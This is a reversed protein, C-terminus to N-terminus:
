VRRHDRRVPRAARRGGPALGLLRPEFVAAWGALGYIPERAVCLNRVLVGVATAAPLTTRGDGAPMHRELVGALDVRALFQDILPLAGLQSSRLEFPGAQEPDIM